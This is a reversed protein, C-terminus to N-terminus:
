SRRKKAIGGIRKGLNEWSRRPNTRRFAQIINVSTAEAKFSLRFTWNAIKAISKAFAQAERLNRFRYGYHPVILGTGIHTIVWDANDNFMRRNIALGPVGSDYAMGSEQGGSRRVTIQMKTM